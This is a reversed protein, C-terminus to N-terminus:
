YLKRYRENRLNSPWLVILTVWQLLLNHLVWMLRQVCSPSCGGLGQCASRKSILKVSHFGLIKKWKKEVNGSVLDSFPWPHESVSYVLPYQNGTALISTHEQNAKAFSYLAQPQLLFTQCFQQSCRDRGWFRGRLCTQTYWERCCLHGPRYSWLAATVCSLFVWACEPLCVSNLCHNGWLKSKRKFCVM